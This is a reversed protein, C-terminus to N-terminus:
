KHRFSLVTAGLSILTIIAVILYIPWFPANINLTKYIIYVFLTVISLKNAGLVIITLNYLYERNRDTIKVPTNWLKPFREVVAFAVLLILPVVFLAILQNKSGYADIRGLADFHRPLKNPIRGWHSVLYAGTCFLIIACITNSILSIKKMKIEKEISWLM